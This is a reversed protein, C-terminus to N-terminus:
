SSTPRGSAASRCTSSGATEGAAVHDPLEFDDDTRACARTWGTGRRRWRRARAYDAEEPYLYLNLYPSEQIFEAEPLRRAGREHLLRQLEGAPGRAGAQYEAGSRTGARRPRRGPLRLVIPPIDPDKMELPNCSVIRVWPRGPHLVGPFVVVNDEVIM